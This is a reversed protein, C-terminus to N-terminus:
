QTTKSGCEGCKGAVVKAKASMRQNEELFLDNGVQQQVHSSRIATEEEEAIPACQKCMNATGNFCVERCTWSGCRRCQVFLPRMEEVAKRLAADHQPGGVMDQVSRAGSSLRGFIGGVISGAADLLGGAQGLANAQFSSMHGNGCRECLFKFQFGRETSLDQYNDTFPIPRSDSM